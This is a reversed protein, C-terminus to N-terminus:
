AGAAGGAVETAAVMCSGYFRWHWIVAAATAIIIWNDRLIAMERERGTTVGSAM